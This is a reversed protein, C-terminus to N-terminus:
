GNYSLSYFSLQTYLIAELDFAYDFDLVQGQRDLVFALYNTAAPASM